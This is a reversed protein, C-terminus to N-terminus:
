DLQVINSSLVISPVTNKIKIDSCFDINLVFSSSNCHHLKSSGGIMRYKDNQWRVLRYWEATDPNNCIAEWTEGNAIRQAWELSQEVWDAIHGGMSRTFEEMEEVTKELWIKKPIMTMFTKEYKEPNSKVELFAELIIQRICEQESDKREKKFLNQDIDNLNVVFCKEETPTQAVKFKKNNFYEGVIAILEEESFIMERGNVQLTIEKVDVLARIM